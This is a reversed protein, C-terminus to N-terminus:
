RLPPELRRGVLACMPCFGVLGTLALGFATAAAFFSLPAHLFAFALGVGVVAVLGRLAREIPPVNKVYLAHRALTM